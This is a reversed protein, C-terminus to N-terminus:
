RPLDNRIREDVIDGKENIIIETEEGAPINSQLMPMSDGKEAPLLEFLVEIDNMDFVSLSIFACSADFLAESTQHTLNKIGIDANGYADVIDHVREINDNKIMISVGAKIEIGKKDFYKM